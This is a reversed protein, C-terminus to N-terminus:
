SGNRAVGMSARAPPLAPMRAPNRCMGKNDIDGGRNNGGAAFDVAIDAILHDGAPFKRDTYGVRMAHTGAKAREVSQCQRTRDIHVVEAGRHLAPGSQM